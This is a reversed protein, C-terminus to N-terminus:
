RDATGSPSIRTVAQPRPRGLCDGGKGSGECSAVDPLSFKGIWVRPGFGSAVTAEALVSQLRPESERQGQSCGDSEKWASATPKRPAENDRVRAAVADHG